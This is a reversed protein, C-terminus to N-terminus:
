LLTKYISFMGKDFALKIADVEDAFGSLRYLGETHLGRAEVEEVCKTM